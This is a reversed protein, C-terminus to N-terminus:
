PSILNLPKVSPGKIPHEQQKGSAVQSPSYCKRCPLWVTALQFHFLAPNCLLVCLVSSKEEKQTGESQCLHSVNHLLAHIEMVAGLRDECVGREYLRISLSM